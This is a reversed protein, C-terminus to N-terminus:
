ESVEAEVTEVAETDAQEAEETSEKEAEQEVVMNDLVIEGNEYNSTAYQEQTQESNYTTLIIIQGNLDVARFQRRFYFTEGDSNMDQYVVYYTNIDTDKNLKHVSCIQNLNSKGDAAIEAENIADFLASVVDAKKVTNFNIQNAIEHIVVQKETTEVAYGLKNLYYALSNYGNEKMFSENLSASVTVVTKDKEIESVNTYSISYTLNDLLEEPYTISDGVVQYGMEIKDSEIGYFTVLDSSFLDIPKSADLEPVRIEYDGTYVSLSSDVSSKLSLTVVDGTSLNSGPSVSLKSGSSTSSPTYNLELKEILAQIEIFDEDSEFDSSKLEKPTVEIYASGDSGYITYEIFDIWDYKYGSSDRNENIVYNPDNKDGQQTKMKCGTISVLCLTAFLINLIKSRM